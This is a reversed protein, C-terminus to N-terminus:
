WFRKLIFSLAASSLFRCWDTKLYIELKHCTWVKQPQLVQPKHTTKFKQLMKTPFSPRLTWLTANVRHMYLTLRHYSTTFTKKLLTFWQYTQHKLIFLTKDAPTLFCKMAPIHTFCAFMGVQQMETSSSLHCHHILQFSVQCKMKM